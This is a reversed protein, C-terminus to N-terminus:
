LGGLLCSAVTLASSGTDLALGGPGAVATDVVISSRAPVTVVFVRRSNTFTTGVTRGDATRVHVATDAAGLWDTGVVCGELQVSAKAMPQAAAAVQLVGDDGGNCGALLLSAPLCPAFAPM